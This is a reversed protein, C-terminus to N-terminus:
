LEPRRTESSLVYTQLSRIWNVHDIERELMLESVDGALKVQRSDVTLTDITTILIVALGIVILLMASIFTIIKKTLGLNNWFM